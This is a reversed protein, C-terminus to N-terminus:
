RLKKFFNKLLKNCEKENIGGHFSYGNLEKHYKNKKNEFIKASQSYAGFYVKKIGTFHIAAECMKCPELTVYLSCGILRQNKKKKCAMRIAMIEAHSTPDSNKISSNYGYGIVSGDEDAIVCGVPVENLELSKFALNIAYDMLDNDINKL